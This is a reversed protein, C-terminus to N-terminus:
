AAGRLKARVQVGTGSPRMVIDHERTCEHCVAFVVADERWLVIAAEVSKSCGCVQCDVHGSAPELRALSTKSAIRLRRM